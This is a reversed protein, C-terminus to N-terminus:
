NACSPPGAIACDTGSCARNGDQYTVGALDPFGPFNSGCEAITGTQIDAANFCPCDSTDESDDDIADCSADNPYDIPGDSDNDLGDSCESQRNCGNPDQVEGVDADPPGELPCEDAGDLVGDNDTDSDCPDTGIGCAEEYDSAGDEDEDGAGTYDIGDGYVDEVAALCLSNSEAVPPYIPEGEEDMLHATAGDNLYLAGCSTPRCKSNNRNGHCRAETWITTIGTDTDPYCTIKTASKGNGKKNASEIECNLTNADFRMQLNDYYLSNPFPGASTFVISQISNAGSASVCNFKFDPFSDTDLWSESTSDVLAGTGGAGDYAWLEVPTDDDSPGFDGFDICVDNVPLGFDAIFVDGFFSFPSLTRSGWSSDVSGALDVVDLGAGSSRYLSVSQGGRTMDLNTNALGSSTALEEFDFNPTLVQVVMVDWEAPVTDLIVIPDNGYPDSWSIQFDYMSADEIGVEVVNDIVGDGDEDNGSVIEKVLETPCRGELVQIWAGGGGFPSAIAEVTISHDGPPLNFCGSSYEPDEFAADPGIDDCEGEAVPSTVGLSVDNDYVEFQDGRCFDDTVYVATGVGSSYDFPGSVSGVDGFGFLQWGDGVTIPALPQPGSTLGAGNDGPNAFATGSGVLALASVTLLVPLCRRLGKTCSKAREIM